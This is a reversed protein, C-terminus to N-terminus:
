FHLKFYKLELSNSAAEMGLWSDFRIRVLVPIWASGPCTKPFWVIRLMVMSFLWSREVILSSANTLTSFRSIRVSLCFLFSAQFELWPEMNERNLFRLRSSFSVKSAFLIVAFPLYLFSQTRILFFYLIFSIKYMKKTILWFTYNIELNYVM